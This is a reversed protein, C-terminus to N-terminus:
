ASVVSIKNEIFIFHWRTIGIVAKGYYERIYIITKALIILVLVAFYNTRYLCGSIQGMINNTWM